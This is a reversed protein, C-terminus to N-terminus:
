KMGVNRQCTPICLRVCTGSRAAGKSNSQFSIYPGTLSHLFDNENIGFRERLSAFTKPAYSTVYALRNSTEENQKSTSTSTSTSTSISTSPIRITKSM